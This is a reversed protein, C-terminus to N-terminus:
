KKITGQGVIDLYIADLVFQADIEKAGNSRMDSWQLSIEGMSNWEFEGGFSLFLADGTWTSGDVFIGESQVHIEAGLLSDSLFQAEISCIIDIEIQGNQRFITGQCVDDFVYISGEFIAQSHMSISGQSFIGDWDEYGDCDNDKGDEIELAGLYSNPDWDDCDSGGQEMSVQGDGDKDELEGGSANDQQWDEPRTLIEVSSDQDNTSQCSISFFLVSYM